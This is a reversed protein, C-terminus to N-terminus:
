LAAHIELPTKANTNLVEWHGSRASGIRRLIGKERLKKINEETKRVSIGIHQAIIPASIHPNERMLNLM